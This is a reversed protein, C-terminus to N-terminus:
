IPNFGTGPEPGIEMLQRNTSRINNNLRLYKNLYRYGLQAVHTTQLAKVITELEEDPKLAFERSRRGLNAQTIFRKIQHASAHLKFRSYLTARIQRYTYHKWLLDRVIPTLCEFNCNGINFQEYGDANIVVKSPDKHLTQNSLDIQNRDPLNINNDPSPELLPIYNIAPVPASEISNESETEDYDSSYEHGSEGGDEEEVNNNNNNHINNINHQQIHIAQM